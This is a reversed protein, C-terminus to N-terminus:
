YHSDTYKWEIVDYSAPIYLNAGKNAYTNNVWYQWYFSGGNVVGNITHVFYALKEGMQYTNYGVTYYKVLIDFVSTSSNEATIDVIIDKTGNAFDVVLTMGNSPPLQNPDTTPDTSEPNGSENEPNLLTQFGGSMYVFTIVLGIVFIACIKNAFYSKEALIIGNL